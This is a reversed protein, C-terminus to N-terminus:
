ETASALSPNSSEAVASLRPHMMPALRIYLVAPWVLTNPSVVDARANDLHIEDIVPVAILDSVGFITVWGQRDVTHGASLGLGSM